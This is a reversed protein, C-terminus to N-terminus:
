LLIFNNIIENMKIILIIIILGNLEKAKLGNEKERLKIKTQIPALVMSNEMRGIVQINEVM